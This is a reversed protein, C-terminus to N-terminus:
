NRILRPMFYDALEPELAAELCTPPRLLLSGFRFGALVLNVLRLGRQKQYPTIM